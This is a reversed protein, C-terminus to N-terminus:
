KSKVGQKTLVYYYLSFSQLSLRALDIAQSKGFTWQNSVRLTKQM